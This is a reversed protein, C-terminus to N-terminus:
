VARVDITRTYWGSDLRRTRIDNSNVRCNVAYTGPNTPKWAYWWLGWTQAHERPPCYEVNHWGSDDEDSEFKIELTPELEDGGWIMGMVRYTIRGDVQWQEIRIPMAATDIVAPIYDRALDPTGNQHTRFSFERMQSTAAEDEDVFIIENVWKICSCGYWGPNFLRVPQGHNPPLAEDNMVTAFFSGANLLQDITFIWAAGPVSGSSNGTHEDFGSVLVRTAGPLPDVMALIDAFPVGSWQAASLLGFSGGETNGSCELLKVGQDVVLPDLDAMSLNLESEVLGHIRINWPTAPDLLGPYMTRVYFLENPTVLNEEGLQKLDFLQRGTLGEGYTEGFPLTGDNDFGMVKIFQANPGEFMPTCQPLMPEDIPPDGTGFCGMLFASSAMMSTRIFERRSLDSDFLPKLQKSM